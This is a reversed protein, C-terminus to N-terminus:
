STREEETEERRPRTHHVPLPGMVRVRTELLRRLADREDDLDGWKVDDPTM